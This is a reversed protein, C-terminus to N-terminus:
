RCRQFYVRGHDGCDGGPATEPCPIRPLPAGLRPPHWHRPEREGLSIGHAAEAKGSASRSSKLASPLYGFVQPPTIQNDM